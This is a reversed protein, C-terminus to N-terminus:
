LGDCFCVHQEEEGDSACSGIGGLSDQLNRITVIFLLHQNFGHLALNVTNLQAIFFGLVKWESQGLVSDPLYWKGRKEVVVVVGNDAHVCVCENVSGIIVRNVHICISWLLRGVLCNRKRYCSVSRSYM